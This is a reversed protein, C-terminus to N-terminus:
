RPSNEDSSEPPNEPNETAAPKDQSERPIPKSITRVNAYQIRNHTKYHHGVINTQYFYCDEPKHYLQRHWVMPIVFPLRNKDCKGSLWLKLTTSCM